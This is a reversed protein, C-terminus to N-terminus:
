YPSAVRALNYSYGTHQYQLGTFSTSCGHFKSHNVVLIANFRHHPVFKIVLTAYFRTYICSIHNFLLAIGSSELLANKDYYRIM